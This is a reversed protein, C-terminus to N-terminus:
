RRYTLRRALEEREHMQRVLQEAEKVPTLPPRARKRYYRLLARRLQIFDSIIRRLM